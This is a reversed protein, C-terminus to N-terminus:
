AEGARWDDSWWQRSHRNVQRGAGGGGGLLWLAPSAPVPKGSGKPDSRM